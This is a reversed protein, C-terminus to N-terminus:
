GAEGGAEGAGRESGGTAKLHFVVGFAFRGGPKAPLLGERPVREWGLQAKTQGLLRLQRSGATGEGAGLGRRAAAM